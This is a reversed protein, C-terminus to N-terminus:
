VKAFVDDEDIIVIKRGGVSLNGDAYPKNYWEGDNGVPYMWLILDGPKVSMPRRKGCNLMKGPGVVLVTGSYYGKRHRRSSKPVFLSGIKEKERSIEVIIRSDTPTPLTDLVQAISIVDPVETEELECNEVDMLAM